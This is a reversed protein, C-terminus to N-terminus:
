ALLAHSFVLDFEDWGGRHLEAPLRLPSCRLIALSAAEAMREAYAQNAPTVGQQSVLRPLGILAGDPGYHVRLDSVIRKASTPVVPDRYCRRVQAAAGAVARGAAAAVIARPAQVCGAPLLAALVALFPLLRIM